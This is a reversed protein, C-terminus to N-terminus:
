PEPPSRDRPDPIALVVRWRGDERVMAIEARQEAREGSVVVVAHDADAGARARLGSGRRPTFRLDSREEVLMEWPELERAGLATTSRAREALRRQSEGDILAYADGTEGRDIADLFLSLAGEPTTDDVERSCAPASIVLVLSLVLARM